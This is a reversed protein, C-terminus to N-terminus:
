SAHLIEALTWTLGEANFELRYDNIGDSMDFVHIMRQGKSTPHRLGLEKFTVERGQWRMKHPFCLTQLNGKPKFSCIVEIRQDIKQITEM